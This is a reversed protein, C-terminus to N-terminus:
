RVCGDISHHGVLEHRLPKFKVGEALVNELMDADHATLLRTQPLAVFPLEAGATTTMTTPSPM